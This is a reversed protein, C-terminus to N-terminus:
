IPINNSKKSLILITKTKRKWHVTSYPQDDIMIVYTKQNKEQGRM